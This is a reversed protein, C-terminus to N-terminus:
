RALPYTSANCWGRNSWQPPSLVRSCRTLSSLGRNSNPIFSCASSGRTIPFNSRRRCCDTRRCAPSSHGSEALKERYATNVEFRHRHRESISTAGYIAAIRSGPMLEARYAGLRMTGGLDGRRRPNGARRRAAVRDDARRRAGDGSWIRELQGEAHGGPIAPAEIVAMRMGFCIGFFSIQARPRFARRYKAKRAASALAARFWFAM